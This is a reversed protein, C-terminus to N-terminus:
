EVSPPRRARASAPVMADPAARAHRQGRLRGQLDMRRRVPDGMELARIV